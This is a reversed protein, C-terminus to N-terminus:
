FHRDDIHLTNKINNGSETFQCNSMYSFNVFYKFNKRPSSAHITCTCTCIVYTSDYAYNQWYVVCM